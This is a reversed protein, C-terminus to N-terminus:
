VCVCVCVCVCVRVCACVCVRVCACVCVRVCACVCVRVCACVCVRARAYGLERLHPMAALGRCLRGVDDPDGFADVPVTGDGLLQGGVRDFLRACQRFLVSTNVLGTDGAKICCLCVVNM